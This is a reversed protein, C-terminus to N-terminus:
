KADSAGKARARIKQLRRATVQGIVSRVVQVIGVPGYGESHGFVKCIKAETAGLDYLRVIEQQVLVKAMQVMAPAHVHNMGFPKDYTEKKKM